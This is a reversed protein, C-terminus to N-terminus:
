RIMVAGVLDEYELLPRQQVEVSAVQRATPAKKPRTDGMPLGDWQGPATLRQGPRTARPHVVLRRDGMWIQVTGDDAQIQVTQGALTWSVGYWSGNWQVYGDRGVKREERLFAVLREPGPLPALHAREAALRDIPRERTTGHIRVNAETDLWVQVQRNLDALDVFRAGPWFNKEVYGVGREVKGKTRPRYRRCLRVEFGLRLAFDLFRANWVPEGAEDRHLVVLKTNDYLCRRPVGGLRAFANLHCRFFMAVDAREVFEVYMARSWGLVLVFCWVWRMTGDVAVYKYRGFDVQAQEGPATEFRVTVKPQRCQRLPHVFEKLITYGGTYGQARIERLLVVCNDVGEALRQLIYDKYPDLKSGRRPRAKAKPVEPARVYRRVTNRSIGLLRAIQRISRGQGRLEYIQKM